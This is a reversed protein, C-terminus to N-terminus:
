KGAAAPAARRLGLLRALSWLCYLAAGLSAAAFFPTLLGLWTVPALLYIGDELEFGALAPYGVADKVSGSALRARLEDIRLNLVLSVVAAAMGLGGLAVALGGLAGNRLGVGICLFLLAYSAAGAAYDLYYGLRSTMKKQRALEGDFHDLFRGVVFALAGWDALTPDGTALLGAGLFSVVVTVATMQNPTIPTRVLPRVLARALLQDWPDRTM